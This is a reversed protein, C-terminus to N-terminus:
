SNIEKMTEEPMREFVKSPSIELSDKDAENEDDDLIDKLKNKMKEVKLKVKGDTNLKLSPLANEFMSDPNFESNFIEMDYHAEDVATRENTSPTNFKTQARKPDMSGFKM